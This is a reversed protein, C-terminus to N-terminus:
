ITRHIVEATSVLNLWERHHIVFNSYDIKTEVPIILKEQKGRRIVGVGWDCDVVFMELNDRTQRMKVYAKWTDGTWEVQTTLPILQMFESEPKCDHMLITGGEALCELSNLIDKEVQDAHHLGDIFICDFKEKNTAFFEDSTKHITAASSPDPDVGTKNECQIARFCHGTQVGIELYNKYGYKDIYAQIISIRNM